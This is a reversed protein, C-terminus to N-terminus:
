VEVGPSLIETIRGIEDTRYPQEHNGAAIWPSSTRGKWAWRIYLGSETRVVAGVNTPAPLPMQALIRERLEKSMNSNREGLASLIMQVDHDDLEYISM